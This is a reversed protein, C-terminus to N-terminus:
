RLVRILFCAVSQLKEVVLDLIMFVMSGFSHLHANSWLTAFVIVNCGIVRAPYSKKGPLCTRAQLMDLGGLLVLCMM